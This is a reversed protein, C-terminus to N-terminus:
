SVGPKWVAGYKSQMPKRAAKSFGGFPAQATKRGETSFVLNGFWWFCIGFLDGLFWEYSM